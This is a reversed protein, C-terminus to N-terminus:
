LIKKIMELTLERDVCRRHLESYYSSFLDRKHLLKFWSYKYPLNYLITAVSTKLATLLDKEKVYNVYSSKKKDRVSGSYMQRRILWGSEGLGKQGKVYEIEM